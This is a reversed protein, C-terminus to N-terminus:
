AVSRCPLYYGNTFTAGNNYIADMTKENSAGAYVVKYGLAQIYEKASKVTFGEGFKSYLKKGDKEFIVFKM